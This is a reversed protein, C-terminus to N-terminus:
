SKLIPSNGERDEWDVEIEGRFTCEAPGILWIDSFAYEGERKFQVKLLGGQTKLGINHSQGRSLNHKHAYTLAVATVGTGCAWTVDEVGREYTSVELYSSHEQVFNVNIGNANYVDNYRIKRGEEFVDIKTMDEVYRVYHPSGTDLDFDEGIHKITAVDNMKLHYGDNDIKGLHPGDCALFSCDNEIIGLYQAFAIICRGGNGCMSGEEGNANFYVMEFDHDPHEQLLIVGDAGVGLRRNCLLNYLYPNHRSLHATRNDILVFDNGAGQYKFFTLMM